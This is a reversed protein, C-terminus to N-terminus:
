VERNKTGKHQLAALIDPLAEPPVYASLDAGFAALQRMMSASIEGTEPSAPLLLTELGPNLLRNIRAM